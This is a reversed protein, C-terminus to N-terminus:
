QVDRERVKGFIIVNILQNTVKMLHHLIVTQYSQGIVMENSQYVHIVATLLSQYHNTIWYCIVRSFVCISTPTSYQPQM